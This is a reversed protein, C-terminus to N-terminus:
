NHNMLIISLVANRVSFVLADLDLRPSSLATAVRTAPIGAPLILVTRVREFQALGGRRAAQPRNRDASGRTSRFAALTASPAMLQKMVLVTESKM